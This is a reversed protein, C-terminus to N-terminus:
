AIGRIDAYIHQSGDGGKSVPKPAVKTFTMEVEIWGLNAPKLAKDAIYSVRGPEYGKLFSGTRGYLVKRERMVLDNKRSDYVPFIRQGTVCGRNHDHGMLYIDAEAIEAMKGVQNFPTGALQGGGKGHHALIDICYKSTGGFIFNLRVVSIVGLYKAGLVQSMRQTTTTGDGFNGYHNGELLGICRGKMFSITDLLSDTTNRYLDEITAITSEHLGEKGMRIRGRESGSVLDTYDGMGLFVCDQRNRNRDCFRRWESACHLPAGFHVDGFPIVTFPKGYRWPIDIVHTTFLGVSFM